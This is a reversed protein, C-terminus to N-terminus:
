FMFSCLFIVESDVSSLKRKLDQKILNQKSLDVLNLLTQKCQKSVLKLENQVNLIENAIEDEKGGGSDCQQEATDTGGGAQASNSNEDCSFDIKENEDLELIGQEILTKKIKREIHNTHTSSFSFKKAMTKPSLYTSEPPSLKDLYDAIENDFPTMLNQEILASILRQTLPGYNMENQQSASLKGLSEEILYNARNEKKAYFNPNGVKRKVPSLKRDFDIFRSSERMQHSIDQDAWQLTYHKGLPEV